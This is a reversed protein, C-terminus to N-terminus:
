ADKMFKVFIDYWENKSCLFLWEKCNISDIKNSTEYPVASITNEIADLLFMCLIPSNGNEDVM